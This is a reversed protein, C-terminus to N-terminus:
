FRLFNGPPNLSGPLPPGAGLAVVVHGSIKDVALGAARQQVAFERFVAYFDWLKYWELFDFSGLDNCGAAVIHSAGTALIFQSDVCLVLVPIDRAAVALLPKSVIIRQPDCCEVGIARM